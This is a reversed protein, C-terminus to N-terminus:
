YGTARIRISYAGPEVRDRPFAYRGQADSVVTTTITSGVGKASVLVGEMPGEAPSSVVGALAAPSEAATLVTIVASFLAAVLLAIAPAFVNKRLM